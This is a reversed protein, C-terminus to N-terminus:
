ARRWAEVLALKERPVALYNRTEPYEHRPEHLAIKGDEAFDFWVYAHRQLCSVIERAAYGWPQTVWDLVECIIIPRLLQLLRTAGAFAQLEGGEVDIKMLDISPIRRQNLYDDLSVAEISIKRIPHDIAPRQLSSMTTFGSTVTFFDFAGSRASVAYPELRVHTVENMQLHLQFRRRERPSPEFAIVTDGSCLKRAALLSYVGHHAGVDFFTMGPKLFEWLFRLESCDDGAYELLTRNPHDATPLLSWWLSLPRGPAIEIRLPVPIFPLRSLSKRAFFRLTTRQQEPTKRLFRTVRQLTV